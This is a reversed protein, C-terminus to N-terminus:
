SYGFGRSQIFDLVIPIPNNNDAITLSGGASQFANLNTAYFSKTSNAFGVPVVSM